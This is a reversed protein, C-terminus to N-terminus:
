GKLASSRTWILDEVLVGVDRPEFFAIKLFKQRGKKLREITQADTLASRIAAALEQEDSVVLVCGTRIPEACPDANTGFTLAVVPIDM